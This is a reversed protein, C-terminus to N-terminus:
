KLLSMSHTASFDGAQMRYFYVGSSVQQGSRDLGEWTTTYTGASLEENVLSAMQQGVANYVEIEVYEVTPVSFEITTEPNFPNPYARGLSYSDPTGASEVAEVATAGDGLRASEVDLPIYMLAGPGRKGEEAPGFGRTELYYHGSTYAGDYPGGEDDVITLFWSTIPRFPGITPPLIVDMLGSGDRGYGSFDAGRENNYSSMFLTSGNTQVAMQMNSSISGGPMGLVAADENSIRDGRYDGIDNVWMLDGDHNVHSIKSTAWSSTWIGLSNVAINRPGTSSAVENGEDDTSYNIYVDSLDFERSIEGSTKDWSEITPFPVDGKSDHAAYVIGLPEWPEIGVIRDEKNAAFGNDGFSTDRDWARASRNIIMKYLGGFEGSNHTTWFIETSEDDPRFGGLTRAGEFDLVGNYNWREWANPNAIYDTGLTGRIVDGAGYVGDAGARDAEQMWIEAPDNRTDIRNHGFGTGAGPGALSPKDLNNVAILDFEYQGAGAANGQWDNGDWTITNRGAEFIQDPTLAVFKDQQELRLWAGFPGTRGTETNGKEYIAVWARGRQNLTFPITASGQGNYAVDQVTILMPNFVGSVEPQSFNEDWGPGEPFTPAQEEEAWVTGPALVALALGILSFRVARM